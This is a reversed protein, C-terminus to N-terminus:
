PQGPAQQLLPEVMDPFWADDDEDDSWDDLNMFNEFQDEVLEDMNDIGQLCDFVKKGKPFESIGFLCLKSLFTAKSGVDVKTQENELSIPSFLARTLSFTAEGPITPQLVYHNQRLLTRLPQAQAPIGRVPLLLLHQVQPVDDQQM